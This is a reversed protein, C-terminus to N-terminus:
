AAAAFTPQLNVVIRHIAPGIVVVVVAQVVRNERAQKIRLQESASWQAEAKELIPLVDILIRYSTIAERLVYGDLIAELRRQVAYVGTRTIRADGILGVLGAKLAFDIDDLLRVIDVYALEDGKSLTTGEGFYLGEGPILVPDIIPVVKKGALAKIEGPGYQSELPISFGAVPKLLISTEPRLGAIASMGAAAVDAQQKADDVAGRAALVIMRGGDSKYPAVLAEVKDAYDITRPLAPDVFVVGIRPMGAASSEECHTKLAATLDFAGAAVTKVPRNAPAVFTVDKVGSLAQLGAKWGAENDTKVSLGYVKSAAPRQLFAIALSRALDSNEGFKAKADAADEIAFPAEQPAPAGNAAMGLIAIVGPERTAIPLLGKLDVVVDVYPYAVQM